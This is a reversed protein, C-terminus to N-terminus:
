GARVISVDGSVTKARLQVLPGDGTPGDASDLESKMSGSVSAADIWLRLGPRVGVRVDGSVAQLRIEGASVSGIWQDGSVTAVTVSDRADHLRLDGSVLSGAFTGGVSRIDVDGSATKVVCDGGVDEGSIDGSASNAVLEGDVQTFSLDGSGTKAHASAVRGRVAVDASETQTEIASGHPCRIRVRIESDRFIGVHWRKPQEVVIEHTDGREEAKVVIEHLREQGGRGRALLEIETRDTDDTEVEVDGSALVVRLKVTGPTDFTYEM